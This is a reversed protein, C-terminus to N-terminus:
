GKENGEIAVAKPQGEEFGLIRGILWTPKPVPCERALQAQKELIEAEVALERFLASEEDLDKSQTSTKQASKPAELRVKSLPM